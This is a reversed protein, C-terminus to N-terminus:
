VSKAGAQDFWLWSSIDGSEVRKQDEMDSWVFNFGTNGGDGVVPNGYGLQYIRWKRWKGSKWYSARTTIAYGSGM